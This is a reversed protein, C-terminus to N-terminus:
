LVTIDRRRAGDGKMVPSNNRVFCVRLRAAHPLITILSEKIIVILNSKM